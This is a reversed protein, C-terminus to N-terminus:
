YGEYLKEYDARYRELVTNRKLKLTPTFMDNEVNWSEDLLVIRRIRAYGPFAKIQQTVRTLAYARARPQQLGAPWEGVLSNENAVELWRERNVVALLSLYPKGEGVVMVQEFLPDRMIAIEIDTPSIKEGNNLVIIDKVRGTITIRGSEDFSAIDGTSLWGGPTIMARTAAENNWYGLMVNPGRAELVNQESLRVEVGPLPPGVSTPQNCHTRNVSIVPSAESLGYGQIIPVGLAIFTRADHFALAAGGCVALRLRGGLRSILKNAVLHKLLPWLLHRAHWSTRGQEHEFRSYGIDVALDFLWRAYAPGKDLKSHLAAQIREFIRPVTIMLTPRVHQLDDQLQQVSRAFAVTAGAMVPLVYGAMRELAHSLPLFSLLIDDPYVDFTQLGAWANSLLNYHSLMVGKPKGTTGSTYVITALTNRDSVQHIFEGGNPPLWNELGRLCPDAINKPSAKLTIVRTLSPHQACNGFLQRWHEATDLLLLKAGSDELAYTVNEARDQIFL